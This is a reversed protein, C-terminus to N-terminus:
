PRSAGVISAAKGTIEGLRDLRKPCRAIFKAPVYHLVTIGRVLDLAIAAGFIIRRLFDGQVLRRCIGECLRNFGDVVDEM